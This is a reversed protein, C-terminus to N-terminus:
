WDDNESIINKGKKIGFLELPIKENNNLNITIIGNLNVLKM